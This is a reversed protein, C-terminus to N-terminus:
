SMLGDAASVTFSCHRAGSCTQTQTKCVRGSDRLSVFLPIYAVHSRLFVSFLLNVPKRYRLPPSDDHYRLRVSPALPECVQIPVEARLFDLGIRSGAYSEQVGVAQAACRRTENALGAPLGGDRAHPVGCRDREQASLDWVTTWYFEVSVNARAIHFIRDRGQEPVFENCSLCAPGPCAWQVRRSEGGSIVDAACRFLNRAHSNGLFVLTTGGLLATNGQAATGGGDFAAYLCGSGGCWENRIAGDGIGVDVSVDGGGRTTRWRGDADGYASGDICTDGCVGRVEITPETHAQRGGAVLSLSLRGVFDRPPDEVAHWLRPGLPVAAFEAERRWAVPAAGPVAAAPHGELVITLPTTPLGACSYVAGLPQGFFRHGLLGDGGGGAPYGGTESPDPAASHIACNVGAIIIPRSRVSAARELRALVARNLVPAPPDSSGKPPPQPPPGYTVVELMTPDPFPPLPELDRNRGLTEWRLRHVAAHRSGGGDGSLGDDARWRVQMGPFASEPVDLGAAAAARTAAAAAAAGAPGELLLTAPNISYLRPTPSEQASRATM